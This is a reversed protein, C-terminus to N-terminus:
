RGIKWQHGCRQCVNWGKNSNIFGALAGAGGTAAVGVVAKGLGFGQKQYAIQSSGCKSCVIKREQRIVNEVVGPSSIQTKERHTYEVVIYKAKTAIDEVLDNFGFVCENKDKYYDISNIFTLFILNEKDDLLQVNDGRLVSQGENLKPNFECNFKCVKRTYVLVQQHEIIPLKIEKGIYDEDYDKVIKDNNIDTNDDKSSLNMPYGCNPCAVARDSIEKSCEPCTIIM